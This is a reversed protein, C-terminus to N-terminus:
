YMNNFIFNFINFINNFIKSKDLLHCAKPKLLKGGM